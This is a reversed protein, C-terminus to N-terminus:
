CSSLLEVDLELSKRWGLKEAPRLHARKIISIVIIIIIIDVSYLLGRLHICCCCLPPIAFLLLLSQKNIIGQYYIYYESPVLSDFLLNQCLNRTLWVKHRQQLYSSNTSASHLSGTKPWLLSPFLL